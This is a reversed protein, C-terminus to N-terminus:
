MSLSYSLTLRRAVNSEEAFQMIHLGLASNKGGFGLNLGGGVYKGADIDIDETHCNFCNRIERQSYM